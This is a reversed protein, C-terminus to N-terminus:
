INFSGKSKKIFLFFPSINDRRESMLEMLFAKDPIVTPTIRSQTISRKPPITKNMNLGLSTKIAIIGTIIEPIITIKNELVNLRSM